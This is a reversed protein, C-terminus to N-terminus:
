KLLEFLISWGEEWRKLLSASTEADEALFARDRAGDQNEGDSTFVDTWRSRLNGSLHKMLIAISNEDAGLTEHLNADGTQDIARDALSKQKQFEGLIDARYAAVDM